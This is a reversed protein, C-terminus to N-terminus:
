TVTDEIVVCVGACFCDPLATQGGQFTHKGFVAVLSPREMVSHIIYHLDLPQRKISLCLESLIISLASLPLLPLPIPAHTKYDM